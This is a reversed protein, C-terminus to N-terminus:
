RQRRSRRPRLWLLAAGFFAIAWPGTPRALPQASCGGTPVAACEASFGGRPAYDCAQETATPPYVACIAAEDDASLTTRMEGPSLEAQMVASESRSHDLGLFHGAEHLMISPLDHQGVIVGLALGADTVPVALPETSNIEIDADYIVGQADLTLWTAALEHGAEAYPWSDDRFTILNANGGRANYQATGCMAPGFADSLSISPHEGADGCRASEWTAFAERMLATALELDILDSASEDM